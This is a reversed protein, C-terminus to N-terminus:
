AVSNTQMMALASPAIGRPLELANRANVPDNITRVVTDYPIGKAAFMNVPRLNKGGPGNWSPFNPQPTFIVARRNMINNSM